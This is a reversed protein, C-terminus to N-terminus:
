GADPGGLYEENVVVKSLIANILLSYGCTTCTVPFVPFVGGPGGIVMGGGYYPRMEFVGGITWSTNACIPCNKDTVWQENVWALARQQEGLVRTKEDM